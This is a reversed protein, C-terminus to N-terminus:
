HPKNQHQNHSEDESSYAYGYTNRFHKNYPFLNSICTHSIVTWLKVSIPNPFFCPNLHLDPSAMFIHLHDGSGEKFISLPGPSNWALRACVWAVEQLESSLLRHGPPIYAFGHMQHLHDKLMYATLWALILCLVCLTLRTGSARSLVKEELEEAHVRGERWMMKGEEM